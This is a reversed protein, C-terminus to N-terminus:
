LIHVSLKNYCYHLLFNRNDLRYLVERGIFKNYFFNNIQYNVKTTEGILPFTFLHIVIFFVDTIYDRSKLKSFSNSYPNIKKTTYISSINLTILLSLVVYPYHFFQVIFFSFMIKKICIVAFFSVQSLTEHKFLEYLIDYSFNSKFFIIRM